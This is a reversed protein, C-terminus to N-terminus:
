AQCEREFARLQDIEQALKRQRRRRQPIFIALWLILLALIPGVNALMRLPTSIERMMLPLVVMAIGIFCFILGSRLWINASYDRRKELEQKYSQLTTKLDSDSAASHPWLVKYAKYGSYISWLTLLGFGLRATWSAFPGLQFRQFTAPFSIVAWAFYLFLLIAVAVSVFVATRAKRDLQQAKRRLQDASMKCVETPQNQWVNQLDNKPFETM